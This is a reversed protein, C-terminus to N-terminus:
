TLASSLSPLCHWLMSPDDTCALYAQRTVVVTTIFDHWGHCGGYVIEFFGFASHAYSVRGFFHLVFSLPLCASLVTMVDNATRHHFSSCAVTPDKVRAFLEEELDDVYRHYFYDTTLFITVSIFHLRESLRTTMASVLVLAAARLWHLHRACEATRRYADRRGQPLLHERADWYDTFKGNVWLSCVLHVVTALVWGVSWPPTATARSISTFTNTVLHTNWFLWWCLNRTFRPEFPRRVVPDLCRRSHAVVRTPQM